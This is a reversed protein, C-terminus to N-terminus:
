KGDVVEEIFARIRKAQPQITKNDIIYQLASEARDYLENKDCLSFARLADIWNSNVVEIIYKYYEDPIGDLREMMVPTGSVLYELTKSPFSYKTYKDTRSRPNVLLCAKKQLAYLSERNVLGLYKIKPNKAALTKIEEAYPGSGCIYFREPINSDLYQEIFEPLGYEKSLTGAYLIYNDHKIIENVGQKVAADAIGEIVLVKKSKIPLRDKMYKTLVIFGDVFEALQYLTRVDRQKILNFPFKYPHLMFEPLDPVVLVIKYGLQKKLKIVPRLYPTHMCYVVVVKPKIRKLATYIQREKSARDLFPINLYAYSDFIIDDYTEISKRVILKKSRPFRYTKHENIVTMRYNLTSLCRCIKFGFVNAAIDTVDKRRILDNLKEEPFCAAVFALEKM